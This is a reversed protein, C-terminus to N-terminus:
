KGLHYALGFRLTNALPSAITGNGSSAMYSFNLVFADWGVGVGATFGNQIGEDKSEIIYGLRASFLKHFTYEAGFSFRYDSNKFSSTWGDIVSKSHYDDLGAASTDSVAPVLLKNMEVGIIFQNDEDIVTTYALGVGLNAPLFEKQSADNTYGIKGGLNSLALGASWGGSTSDVGNYYLSIDGAVANGTKYNVDNVTGTVLKSNIYRLAVALGLTNSLKRSYGFDFAWERPHVSPLKNGSYDEMPVEGINFYRIGASIAENEDLQHFVSGTLLYTDNSVDHM